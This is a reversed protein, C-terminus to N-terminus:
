KMNEEVEIEYIQQQKTPPSESNESIIRINNTNEAKKFKGNGKCRETKSKRNLTRNINLNVIIHLFFLLLKLCPFFFIIVSQFVVLCAIRAM